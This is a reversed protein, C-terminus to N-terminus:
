EGEEAIERLIEATDEPTIEHNPRYPKEHNNSRIKESM